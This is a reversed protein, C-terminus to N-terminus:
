AEVAVVVQCLGEVMQDSTLSHVGEHLSVIQDLATKARDQLDPRRDLHYQRLHQVRGAASALASCM